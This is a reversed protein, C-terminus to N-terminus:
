LYNCVKLLLHVVNKDRVFNEEEFRLYSFKTASSKWRGQRDITHSSVINRFADTAGGIRPLHLGYLELNLEAFSVMTKFAKLAASYSVSKGTCYRSM